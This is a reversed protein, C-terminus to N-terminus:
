TQSAQLAGGVSDPVNRSCGPLLRVPNPHGFGCFCAGPDPLAVALRPSSPQLALTGGKAM